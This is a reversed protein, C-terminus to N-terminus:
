TAPSEGSLDLAEPASLQLKAALEYSAIRAELRTDGPCQERHRRNIKNLLALGDQESEPTIYRASAPAFLDSIPSSATPKLITGQHTMPLFGSAFNGKQNYPLGKADPLVVFSPLNENLSGLAYSIWAGACPFGPLLFGTNMMYSAPGHVNTK